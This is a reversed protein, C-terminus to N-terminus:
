WRLAHIKKNVGKGQIKRRFSIIYLFAFSFYSTQLLVECYLIEHKYYPLAQQAQLLHTPTTQVNEGRRDNRM